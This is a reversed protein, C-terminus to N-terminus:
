HEYGNGVSRVEGNRAAVANLWQKSQSCHRDIYAIPVFMVKALM